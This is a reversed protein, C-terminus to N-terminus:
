TLPKLAPERREKSTSFNFSYPQFTFVCSHVEEPDLLNVKTVYVQLPLQSFHLALSAAVQQLLLILPFAEFVVRRLIREKLSFLEEM